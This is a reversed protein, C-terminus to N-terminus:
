KRKTPLKKFSWDDFGKKDRMDKDSINIMPNENKGLVGSIYGSIEMFATYSDKITYFDFDKLCPNIKFYEKDINQLDIIFVPVKYKTFFEKIDSYINKDFFLKLSDNSSKYFHWKRYKKFIFHSKIDKCKSKNVLNILENYSYIFYNVATNCTKKNIIEYQVLPYINGCYGIIFYKLNIKFKIKNNYEGFMRNQPIDLEINDKYYRSVSKFGFMRYYKRDPKFAETKRLYIVSTDVGYKLGIDYYDSFKSIIKM